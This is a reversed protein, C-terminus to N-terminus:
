TPTRRQSGELLHTFDIMANEGQLNKTAALQQEKRCEKVERPTKVQM